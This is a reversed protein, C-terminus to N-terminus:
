SLKAILRHENARKERCSSALNDITKKNKKPFTDLRKAPANDREKEIYSCQTLLKMFKNM